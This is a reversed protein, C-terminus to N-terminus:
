ADCNDNKTTINLSACYSGDFKDICDWTGTKKNYRITDGHKACILKTNSNVKVM